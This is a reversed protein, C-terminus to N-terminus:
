LIPADSAAHVTSTIHEDPQIPNSKQGVSEGPQENM